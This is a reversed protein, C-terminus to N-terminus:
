NYCTYLSYEGGIACTKTEKGFPDTVSTSCGYCVFLVLVSLFYLRAMIVQLSLSVNTIFHKFKKLPEVLKMIEHLSLLFLDFYKQYLENEQHYITYLLM